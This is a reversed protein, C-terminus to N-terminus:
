LGGVGLLVSSSPQAPMEHSRGVTQAVLAHLAVGMTRLVLGASRWVGMVWLGM